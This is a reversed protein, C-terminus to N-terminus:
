LSIRSFCSCHLPVTLERHINLRGTSGMMAQRIDVYRPTRSRWFGIHSLEISSSYRFVMRPQLIAATQLAPLWGSLWIKLSMHRRCWVHVAGCQCLSHQCALHFQYATCFCTHSCIQMQTLRYVGSKSNGATISLPVRYAQLNTGPVASPYKGLLRPTM